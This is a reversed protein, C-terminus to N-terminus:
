NPVKCEKNQNNLWIDNKDPNNIHGNLNYDGSLYGTKGVFISWFNNKDDGNVIGEANGDGGAMGWLGPFGTELQVYGASGGYIKNVADSYNYTYVGDSEVLANNSMIGLHNRHWIVVYLNQNITLPTTLKKTGDMGVVSGNSLLFAARKRISTAATATLASAADRMDVLVWDVVEANPIVTVSETGTYSWPAINYPQNLPILDPNLSTSMLNGGTYPGQLFVTLDLEPENYILEIDDFYAISGVHASTGASSVVFLIYQPTTSNFYNFPASFRTWTPTSNSINIEAMAIWNTQSADPIKATGTHILAKVQAIDGSVPSYKAWIVVSDPKQALATRWQENGTDTYVWGTGSLEAHVRGNTVIGSVIIGGIPATVNFLKVSYTGTHADTSKDWVYPALGNIIGGGDSTKISSWDVPEQTTLGSITEWSEFGANQPQQQAYTSISFAATIISIFITKKM